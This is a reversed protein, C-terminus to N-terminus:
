WLGGGDVGHFLIFHRDPLAEVKNFWNSGSIGEGREGGGRRRQGKHRLVEGRTVGDWCDVRVQLGKTTVITPLISATNVSELPVDTFGYLLKLTLPIAYSVGKWLVIPFMTLFNIKNRIDGYWGKGSTNNRPM